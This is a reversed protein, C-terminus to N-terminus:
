PQTPIQVSTEQIKSWCEAWNMVTAGWAKGSHNTQRFPTKSPNNYRGAQFTNKTGSINKRVGNTHDKQIQISVMTLM